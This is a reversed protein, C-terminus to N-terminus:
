RHRDAVFRAAAIPEFCGNRLSSTIPNTQGSIRGITHSLRITRMDRGRDSLLWAYSLGTPNAQAILGLNTKPQKRSSRGPSAVREDAFATCGGLEFTAVPGSVCARLSMHMM